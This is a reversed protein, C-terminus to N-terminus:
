RFTRQRPDELHGACNFAFLHPRGEDVSLITVNSNFSTGALQTMDGDRLPLALGMSIAVPTASTFVAVRGGMSAEDLRERAAAQVRAVFATWSEGEFSYRGAVWARVVATDAPTWTRHIRADGSRIAKQLAEFHDRFAPDDAAMRPAIAAYVADLDFENWRPDRRAEPQQLGAEAMAGLVLAATDQQRRLAGSWVADFRIGQRALWVGLSRAQAEGLSSLRDYEDRTGAQGHRILYLLNM